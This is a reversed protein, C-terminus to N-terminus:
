SLATVATIAREQIHLSDENDQKGLHVESEPPKAFWVTFEAFFVTIKNPQDSLKEKLPQCDQCRITQTKQM